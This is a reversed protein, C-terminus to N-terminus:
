QDLDLRRGVTVAPRGSNVGIRGASNNVTGGNVITLTGSGAYGVYLDASSTWTSGPGDVTAASTSSSSVASLATCSM